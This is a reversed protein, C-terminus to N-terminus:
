PHNGPNETIYFTGSVFTNAAYSAIWIDYTGGAPNNFDITPNVTGFSDDVCYFNGYPDNVVMTTDVASGIFYLRLLSAGGGGFNIRLDPPSTAFGSCSSGLYSVDVPGGSTMGVSYPDPLFGASLNAEGYNAAATYDLRPNLPLVVILSGIPRICLILPVCATAPPGAPTPPATPPETPPETSDITATEIASPQPQPTRKPKKTRRPGPSPADTASSLAAVEGSGTAAPSTGADPALTVCAAALLVVIAYVLLSQVSSAFGRNVARRDDEKAVDGDLPRYGTRVSAAACSRAV